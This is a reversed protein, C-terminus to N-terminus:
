GGLPALGCSRRVAPLLTVLTILVGLAAYIAQLLDFPIILVEVVIWIILGCGVTFSGYWSWATHRWLGLAVVVPLVGLVLGLILGPVLYDPFPSGQLYSQPLHLIGGDPAAVLAAGGALGGIGQMVLLVLLLWVAGPRSAPAAQAQSPDLSM